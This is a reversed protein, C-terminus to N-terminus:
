ESRELLRTLKGVLSDRRNTLTRLNGDDFSEILDAKLADRVLTGAAVNGQRILESGIWGLMPHRVNLDLNEKAEESVLWEVWAGLPQRSEFLRRGVEDLDAPPSEIGRRLTELFERLASGWDDHELYWRAAKVRYVNPEPHVMVLETLDDIENMPDGDPRSTFGREVDGFVPALRNLARAKRRADTGSIPGYYSGGPRAIWKQIERAGDTDGLAHLRLAIESAIYYPGGRVYTGGLFPKALDRLGSVGSHRALLQELAAHAAAREEDSPIVIDYRWSFLDAIDWLERKILEEPSLARAPRPTEPERVPTRPPLESALGKAIMMKETIYRSSSYLPWAGSGAGHKELVDLVGQAGDFAGLEVFRVGIFVLLDPVPSFYPRTDLLEVMRRFQVADCADLWAEIFATISEYQPHSYYGYGWRSDLLGLVADLAQETADNRIFLRAAELTMRVIRPDGSMKDVSRLLAAADAIEQRDSMGSNFDTRDYPRLNRSSSAADGGLMFM